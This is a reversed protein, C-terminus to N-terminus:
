VYDAMLMARETSPKVDSEFGNRIGLLDPNAPGALPLAGQLNKGLYLAKGPHFESHYFQGLLKLSQKDDLKIDLTGSLDLARNYQLDTQTIDPTVQKGSADYAAGNQAYALALRGFVQDTGGEVSQAVRWDVDESGSFGSRGAVESTFTAPGPAGRKTVINIIGGTAGGGYVSSAGSLVEIREINFPSISDFQRSINRMSNLSVGDIMIQASRGRMNQSYNTRSQSGLDLSPVLNGLVEPLTAGGQAQQEIQERTLYWVTRPLESISTPAYGAVVVVNELTQATPAGAEVLVASPGTFRWNLGSGALLRDLAQTATYRGALPAGRKDQTLAAPFSIQLQYQRGLALLASDLAQAQLEVAQPTESQAHSVAHTLSLAVALALPRLRNKLLSPLPKM